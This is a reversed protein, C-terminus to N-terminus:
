DSDASNIRRAIRLADRILFICIADAILIFILYGYMQLRLIEIGHLLLSGLSGLIFFAGFGAELIM